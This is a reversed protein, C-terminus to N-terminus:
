EACVYPGPRLIVYLGEQQAERVFEAVDNQGSFDYTGPVREHVNWFTYMTIANLGMAKAMKLRARWYERPIRPYHMEGSIIQYPKGDLAFHGDAVAFTHAAAPAPVDAAAYRGGLTLVCLCACALSAPRM